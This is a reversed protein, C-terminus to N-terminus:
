SILSCSFAAVVDDVVAVVVEVVGAAVVAPRGERFLIPLTKLESSSFGSSSSNNALHSMKRPSHQKVVKAATTKGQLHCKPLELLTTDGHGIQMHLRPLEHSIVYTTQM